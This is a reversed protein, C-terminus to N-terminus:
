DPDGAHTYDNKHKGEYVRWPQSGKGGFNQRCGWDRKVDERLTGLCVECTEKTLVNSPGYGTLWPVTLQPGDDMM